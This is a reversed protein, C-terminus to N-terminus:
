KPDNWHKKTRHLRMDEKTKVKHCDMCLIQLNKEDFDTGGNVIAVIHDVEFAHGYYGNYPDPKESVGEIGTYRTLQDLVYDDSMIKTYEEELKQLLESRHQEIKDTHDRKVMDKWENLKGKKEKEKYDEKRGCKNCTKGVKSIFRNRFEDWFMTREHWDQQHETTCYIRQFRDFDKREKGCWCKKSKLNAVEDNSVDWRQKARVM